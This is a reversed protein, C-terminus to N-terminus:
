CFCIRVGHVCTAFPLECTCVLLCALLPAFSLSFCSGFFWSDYVLEVSLLFKVGSVRFTVCVDCASCTRTTPNVHTYTHQNLISSSGLGDCGMGGCVGCRWVSSLAHTLVPCCSGPSSCFAVCQSFCQGSFCTPTVRPSLHRAGPAATAATGLSVARFWSSVWADAWSIQLPRVSGDHSAGSVHECSSCSCM